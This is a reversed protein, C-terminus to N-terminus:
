GGPPPIVIDDYNMFTPTVDEPINVFDFPDAALYSSPAMNGAADSYMPGVVPAPAAVMPVQMVPQAVTQAVPAATARPAAQMQPAPASAIPAAAAPATATGAAATPAIIGGSVKGVMDQVTKNGALRALAELVALTGAAKPVNTGERATKTETTGKTAQAVGQGAQVQLQQNQLGQSVIKEQAALTTQKLLENLAAQVPANNSSRAGVSRGYAAQLGPIAGGAQQFISQLIANYDAGQLQGLVNQLAAIDGPNQTTTSKAATGGLMQLLASIDQVGGTPAAVKGTAM